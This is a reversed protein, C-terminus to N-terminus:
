EERRKFDELLKDFHVIKEMIDMIDEPDPSFIHIHDNKYIRLEMRIDTPKVSYELCFYSAYVKLQDEHSTIDINPSVGCKLDHIRLLNKRFSITDATGFANPSYFLPVEPTMRYGIGDNVYNSLNQGNKPLKIRKEILKAAINHIETGENAMQSSQYRQILKDDTYRLWSNQSASLFSHAGALNSHKNFNM